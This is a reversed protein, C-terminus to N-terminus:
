ERHDGASPAHSFRPEDLIDDAWDDVAMSLNRRVDDGADRVAHIAQELSEAVEECSSGVRVHLYIRGDSAYEIRDVHELTYWEAADRRAEENVLFSLDIRTTCDLGGWPGHLRFPTSEEGEFHRGHLSFSELDCHPLERLMRAVTELLETAHEAM